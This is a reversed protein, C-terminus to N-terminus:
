HHSLICQKVGRCQPLANFVQSRSYHNDIESAAAEITIRYAPVLLVSPAKIVQLNSDRISCGADLRGGTDHGTKVEEGELVGGGVGWFMWEGVGGDRAEWAM